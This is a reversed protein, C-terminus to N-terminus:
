ERVQGSDAASGSVPVEPQWHGPESMPRLDRPAEPIPQRGQRPDRDTFINPFFKLLLLFKKCRRCSFSLIFNKEYAELNKTGDLQLLVKLGLEAAKAFGVTKIAQMTHSGSIMAYRGQIMNEGMEVAVLDTLIKQTSQSPFCVHHLSYKNLM